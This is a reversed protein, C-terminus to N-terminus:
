SSNNWTFLCPSSIIGKTFTAFTSEIPTTIMTANM